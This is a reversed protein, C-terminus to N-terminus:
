SRAQEPELLRPLGARDRRTRYEHRLGDVSFIILALWIMSFAALRTMGLPEGFSVGVIFQLTPGLYQIFGITSLRLRKAAIAFMILPIATIPGSAILIPWDIARLPVLNASLGSTMVWLILFPMLVLVETLFGVRGDIAVAKRILSYSAFSFCLILSVWPLHGLAVTEIAVGICAIVLAIWQAKRLRESLFLVGALVNVLPNIYYGLSAEMVRGQNVAWIYVYWNLGILLGSVTLLAFRRLTLAARMEPWRRAITVLILGTPISWAVRHALVIDPPYAEVLKFYLPLLGWMTYACLAAFLGTRVNSGM